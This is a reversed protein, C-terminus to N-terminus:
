LMKPRLILAKIFWTKSCFKRIEILYAICTYINSMQYFYGMREKKGPWQPSPGRGWGKDVGTATQSMRTVARCGSRSSSKLVSRVQSHINV